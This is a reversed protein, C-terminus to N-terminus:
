IFCGELAARAYEIRERAEWEASELRQLTRAIEQEAQEIAEYQRRAFDPLAQRLARLAEIEANVQTM